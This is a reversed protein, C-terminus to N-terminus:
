LDFTGGGTLALTDTGSGGALSDAALLTSATADVTNTGGGAGLNVTDTGSGLTLTTNAVGSGGTVIDTGNGLSVSIAAADHLNLTPNSNDVTVNEFGTFTAPGPTCAM